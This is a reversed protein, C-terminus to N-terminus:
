FSLTTGLGVHIRTMHADQALLFSGVDTRLGLNHSYV